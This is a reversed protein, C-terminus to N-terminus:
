RNLGANMFIFSMTDPDSLQLEVWYSGEEFGDLSVCPIHLVGSFMNFDACTERNDENEGNEHTDSSAAALGAEYGKQFAEALLEEPCQPDVPDNVDGGECEWCIELICIEAGDIDIRRIGDASSLTLTQAMSGSAATESDVMSGSANYANLTAYYGHKLTVEIVQPYGNPCMFESFQITSPKLANSESWPVSIDLHDNGSCDTIALESLSGDPLTAATLTIDGLIVKPLNYDETSFFDEATVCNGEFPHDPDNPNPEVYSSEECMITNEACFFDERNGADDYAVLCAQIIHEGDELIQPQIVCNGNPMRFEQCEWTSWSYTWSLIGDIWIDLGGRLEKDVAEEGQNTVVISLKGNDCFIDSIVINSFPSQDTYDNDDPFDTVDPNGNEDALDTLESILLETIGADKAPTVQVASFTLLFITIFIFTAKSLHKM